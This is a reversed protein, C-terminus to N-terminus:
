YEIKFKEELNKYRKLPQQYSWKLDRIKKFVKREELFEIWEIFPQLLTDKKFQPNKYYVLQKTRVQKDVWLQLMKRTLIKNKPFSEIWLIFQYKWHMPHTQIMWESSLCYYIEKPISVINEKNRYILELFDRLKPSPYRIEKVLQEHRRNIDTFEQMSMKAKNQELLKLSNKENLNFQELQCNMQSNRIMQFDYRISICDAFADYHILLLRNDRINLYLCAKHFATLGKTYNFRNGLIWIVEYNAQLYGQTREMLSEISISSCQFEIVIRQNDKEFLIDPRQQLEPLYGELQVNTERMKLYTALQLKGKLHEETEGESFVKCSTKRYHAFHPRKINGVKLFVRGKCSPCYFLDKKCLSSKATVIEAENNLAVLLNM